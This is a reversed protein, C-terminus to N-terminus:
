ERGWGIEMKKKEAAGRQFSFVALTKGLAISLRQSPTPTLPRFPPPLCSSRAAGFEVVLLLDIVRGALIVPLVVSSFSFV